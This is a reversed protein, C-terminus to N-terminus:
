SFTLLKSNDELAEIANAYGAPIHLVTNSDTNLVISEVKLYSSPSEWDDVKVFHIKFAGEVCYFNKCDLKHGQWARIPHGESNSIIYFRQIDDFKFDNVFTVTGRHDQYVKGEILKPEM